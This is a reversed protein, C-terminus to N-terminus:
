KRGLLFITKLKDQHERLQDLMVEPLRTPHPRSRIVDGYPNVWWFVRCRTCWKAGDPDTEWHDYHILLCNATPEATVDLGGVKM